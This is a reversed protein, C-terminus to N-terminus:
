SGIPEVGVRGVAIQPTTSLFRAESAAIPAIGDSRTAVGSVPSVEVPKKFFTGPAEDGFAMGLSRATIVLEDDPEVTRTGGMVESFPVLKTSGNVMAVLGSESSEDLYRAAAAGLRQALVRDFTCPSGGRQLHGLVLSRSEYGTAESIQQSIREAIGGLVAHEKFVSKEGRFLMEGGAPKAGEAVVFIAFPRGGQYRSALKEFLPELRYPVEPLLIADAGGAIAAHLAIWGAYRGMVEVVMVRRHAQATTHLKDIADTATAVATEFGFTVDTGLLDNDITKPVGIVRPLGRAMLKTALNMSGDGGLAILAECGLEAFRRVVQESVDLPVKKGNQEVPYNFPDGRNTTGLITGGIHAIGRVAERDLRILGDGSPDILGGYGERIGIVEWGRNIASLTAARIVGNLGPADGGGTNIAIRRM